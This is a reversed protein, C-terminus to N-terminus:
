NEAILKELKTKREEQKRKLELIRMEKPSLWRTDWSSRIEVQWQKLIFEDNM